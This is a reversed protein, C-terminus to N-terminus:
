RGADDAGLDRKAAGIGPVAAARDRFSPEMADSVANVQDKVEVKGSDDCDVSAAACADRGGDPASTTVGVVHYWPTDSVPGARDTQYTVSFSRTRAEHIVPSGIEVHSTVLTAAGIPIQSLLARSGLLEAHPRLRM